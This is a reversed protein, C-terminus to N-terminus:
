DQNGLASRLRAREARWTGAEASEPHTALLQDLHALAETWATGAAARRDARQLSEGRTRLTQALAFRAAPRDNLRLEERRWWLAQEWAREALEPPGTRARAEALLLLIEVQLDRAAQQTWIGPQLKELVGLAEEALTLAQDPRQWAAHWSGLSQFAGAAVVHLRAESTLQLFRRAVEAAPQAATREPTSEGLRVELRTLASSTSIFEFAIVANNPDSELLQLHLARAERLLGTAGPVGRRDLDLALRGISRAYSLRHFPDTPALELSRRAWRLGEETASRAAETEGVQRLLMSYSITGMSAIRQIEPDLPWRATWAQAQPSFRENEQRAEAVRGALAARHLLHAEVMLWTRAVAVDDLTEPQVWALAQRAEAFATAAAAPQGQASLLEAALIALDAPTSERLATRAAIARGIEARRLALDLRGVNRYARGLRLEARARAAQDPANEALTQTAKELLGIQAETPGSMRALGAALDDVMVLAARYTREREQRAAAESDQTRTRLGQLLAWGILGAAAASLIAANAVPQRRWRRRWRTGFSPARSLIPEGALLRAVEAALAGAEPFREGPQQALARLTVVDLDRWPRGARRSPPPPECEQRRAQPIRDDTAQSRFPHEGAILEYLIVGLSYVDTARSIPQGSIQEPSAYAATFVGGTAPGASAASVERALGFDLLKPRLEPTVVIHAPKLDLHVIGAAHAYAVAECVAQFVRLRQPLDPRDQRVWLDLALGDVFETILWAEGEPNTGADLLQAIGPHELRGLIRTEEAFCDGAVPSFKTAPLFKIAVAREFRGDAREARWVSGMGGHGLPSLLRWPGLRRGGAAFSSDPSASPSTSM